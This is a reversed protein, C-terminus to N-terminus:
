RAFRRLVEALVDIARHYEDLLIHEDPTHDLAADGPGYAVCPCGWIPALINMDATGTKLKFAPAGGAARIAPLFARVLANTKDGRYPPESGSLRVQHPAALRQTLEGVEEPSTGLPIRYGISLRAEDVFGDSDTAVGRLVPTLQDFIRKDTNREACAAAIALWVGVAAEAVSGVPGASHGTPQRMVIDARVSGKYGLTVASWGSPEGIILADPPSPWTAALHRAGPSQAEEGVAGVVILRLGPLAGVRAVAAIFACMPGKADVAGRGYLRDGERRVPIEGPVTDIHGVLMVQRPGAGLTGIVNGVADTTVSLGRDAMVAGLYAAVPGEAGSPSFRVLAGILLAEAAAKDMM